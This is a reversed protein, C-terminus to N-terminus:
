RRTEVLDLITEEVGKTGLKTSDVVAQDAVRRATYNPQKAGVYGAALLAEENEALFAPELKIIPTNGTVGEVVEGKFKKLAKKAEEYLTAKNEYNMGTLVLMKEKKTINAKRLLKFALIEPPLTMNKKEIKGYLSDFQAIFESVSQKETRHFDKFNKLNTWVIM